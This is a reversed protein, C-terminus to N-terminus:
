CLFGSEFSNSTKTRNFSCPSLGFAVCSSLAIIIDDSQSFFQGLLIQDQKELNLLFFKGSLVHIDVHM